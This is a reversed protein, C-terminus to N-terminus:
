FLTGFTLLLKFIHVTCLASVLDTICSHTDSAFVKLFITLTSDSRNPFGPSSCKNHWKKQNYAKFKSGKVANTLQLLQCTILARVSSQFHHQFFKLQKAGDRFDAATHNRVNHGIAARGYGQLAESAGCIQQVM